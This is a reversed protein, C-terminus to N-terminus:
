KLRRVIIVVKNLDSTKLLMSKVQYNKQSKGMLEASQNKVENQTKDVIELLETQSIDNIIASLKNGTNKNSFELGDGYIEVLSECTDSLTNLVFQYEELAELLIGIEHDKKQIEKKLGQANDHLKRYLEIKALLIQGNIPKLIYDVAGVEFGQEMFIQAKFVASAMIIPISSTKKRSGIIKSLQFGNYDPLQVDMIILDIQKEILLALAESGDAAEHVNIKEPELLAKLSFRNNKDDDIVLVHYSM